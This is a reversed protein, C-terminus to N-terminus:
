RTRERLEQVHQRKITTVLATISPDLAYAGSSLGLATRAEHLRDRLEVLDARKIVKSPLPSPSSWVAASLGATSRIANVATRLQEFHWGAVVIGAALPDNTYIITTALDMNSYPSFSSGAVARVRYVYALNAGVATDSYTTGTVSQLLTFGGGAAKREIQYSAAGASASWTLDVQSSTAAIRDGFTLLLRSARSLKRFKIEAGVFLPSVDPSRAM